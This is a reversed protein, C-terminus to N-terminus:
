FLGNKSVFTVTPLVIPVTSVDSRGAYTLNSIYQIGTGIFLKKSNSALQTSDANQAFASTSIFALLILFSFVSKLRAM